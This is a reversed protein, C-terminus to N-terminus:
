FDDRRSAIMTKIMKSNEIEQWVQSEKEKIDKKTMTLTKMKNVGRKDIKTIM